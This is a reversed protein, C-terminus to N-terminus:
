TDSITCLAWSAGLTISKILWDSLFLIMIGFALYCIFAYDGVPPFSYEIMTGLIGAVVLILLVGAKGVWIDNRNCQTHVKLVNSEKDM